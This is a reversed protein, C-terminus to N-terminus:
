RGMLRCLQEVQTLANAQWRVDIGLKARDCSDPRLKLATSFQNLADERQGLSLLGVALAMRPLPDRASRRVAQRWAAAAPRTESNQFHAFGLNLWTDAHDPRLRSAESYEAISASWNQRRYHANGLMFHIQGDQPRLGTARELESIACGLDARKYCEVAQEVHRQARDSDTEGTSLPSAREQNEAAILSSRSSVALTLAVALGAILTQLKSVNNIGSFFGRNM